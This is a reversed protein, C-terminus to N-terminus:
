QKNRFTRRHHYAIRKRTPNRRWYRRRKQTAWWDRRRTQPRKPPKYPPIRLQLPLFPALRRAAEKYQREIDDNESIDIGVNSSADTSSKVNDTYMSRTQKEGYMNPPADINYGYIDSGQITYEEIYMDIHRKVRRKVM